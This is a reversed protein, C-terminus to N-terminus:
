ANGTIKKAIEGLAGTMATIIRDSAEGLGHREALYKPENYSFWTKGNADQWILARHPLDIGMTQDIQFLPTGGKPNGFFILKTPRLEMDVAKAAAAHDVRGLVTLNRAKLEVELREATEAPSFKSEVSTLGEKSM